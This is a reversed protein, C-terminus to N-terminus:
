ILWEGSLSVETRGSEVNKRMQDVGARAAESLSKLDLTRLYHVYIVAERLVIFQRLAAADPQLNRIQRYGDLFARWHTRVLSALQDAPVKNLFHCLVGDYFVTALDHEIPAIECNDFDFIWLRSGDLFTNGFSIDSHVLRQTAPHSKLERVLRHVALRFPSNPQVHADLDTTLLRSQHWAPRHPQPAAHDFSAAHMQATLGGLTAYLAPTVDTRLVKRGPARDFHVALLDADGCRIHECRRGSPSTRARCVTIGRGALDEIWDLEAEIEDSTRSRGHSVRLISADEGDLGVEFVENQSVRIRKVPQVIGFRDCVAKVQQENLM